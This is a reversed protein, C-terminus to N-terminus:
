RTGRQRVPRAVALYENLVETPETAVKAVMRRLKNADRSPLGLLPRRLAASWAAKNRFAGLVPVLPALEIGRGLPALQQLEFRLGLEFTRGAVVAPQPLREVDTTATAVGIVRGRDRTPNQFCGRTTYILLPDSPRVGAVEATRHGPFAMRQKSLVWGLAVRDSIIILHGRSVEPGVITL